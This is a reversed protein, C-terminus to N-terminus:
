TGQLRRSRQGPRGVPPAKARVPGPACFYLTKFSLSFRANLLAGPTRRKGVLECVCVCHQSVHRPRRSHPMLPSPSLPPLRCGQFRRFAARRLNTRANIRVGFLFTLLSLCNRFPRRQMSRGARYLPRAARWPRRGPFPHRALSRKPVSVFSLGPNSSPKLATYARGRRGLPLLFFFFSFFPARGRLMASLRRGSQEQQFLPNRRSPKAQRVSKAQRVQRYVTQKPSQNDRPGRRRQSTAGNM